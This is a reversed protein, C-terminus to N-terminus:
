SPPGPGSGFFNAILSQNKCQSIGALKIKKVSANFLLASWQVLIITDARYPCLALHVLRGYRATLAQKPADPPLGGLGGRKKRLPSTAFFQRAQTLEHSTWKQCCGRNKGSRIM